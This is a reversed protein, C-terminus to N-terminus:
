KSAKKHISAEAQKFPAPLGTDGAIDDPAILELASAVKKYGAPLKFNAKGKEPKITKTDLYTFTTGNPNYSVLRLPLGHGKLPSCGVFLCCADALDTRVNLADSCWLEMKFNENRLPRFIFRTAKFGSIQGSSKSLLKWEGRARHNQQIGLEDYAGMPRQVYRKTEDSMITLTPEPVTLLVRIDATQMQMGRPKLRTTIFGYQDSRQELIWDKNASQSVSSPTATKARANPCAVLFVAVAAILNLKDFKM